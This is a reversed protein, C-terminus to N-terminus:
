VLLHSYSSSQISLKHEAFISCRKCKNNRKTRCFRRCDICIITNQKIKRANSEGNWARHTHTHLKTLMRHFWRHPRCQVEDRSHCLLVFQERTWSAWKCKAMKWAWKSNPPCINPWKVSYRPSLVELAMHSVVLKWQLCVCVCRM